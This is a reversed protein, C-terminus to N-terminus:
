SSARGREIQTRATHSQPPCIMAPNIKALIEDLPLAVDRSDCDAGASFLQPAAHRLSGFSIKVSGSPLQSLIRELSITMTAGRIDLDPLRDKLDHPLGKLVSQLSIDVDSAISGNSDSEAEPVAAPAAKPIRRPTQAPQRASVPRNGATYVTRPMALGAS